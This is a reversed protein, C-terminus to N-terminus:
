RVSMPRLVLSSVYRRYARSKAILPDEQPDTGIGLDTPRFMWALSVIHRWIALEANSSTKPLLAQVREKTAVPPESVGNQRLHDDITRWLAGSTLANLLRIEVDYAQAERRDWFSEPHPSTSGVPDTHWQQAHVLEHAFVLGALERSLHEDSLVLTRKWSVFAAARRTRLKRDGWWDTPLAAQEEHSMVVILFGDPEIARGNSPRPVGRVLKAPIAHDHSWAQLDRGVTGGRTVYELAHTWHALAKTRNPCPEDRHPATARSFGAMVASVTGILFLATFIAAGVRPQPRGRIVSQSKMSRNNM